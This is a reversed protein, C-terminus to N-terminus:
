IACNQVCVAAVETLVGSSHTQMSVVFVYVCDIMVGLGKINYM